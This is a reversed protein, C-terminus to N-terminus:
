AAGIEDAGKVHALLMADALLDGLKTLDLSPYLDLLRDALQQLSTITPDQVLTRIQDVAGQMVAQTQQDLADELDDVYDRPGSIGPHRSAVHKDTPKTEDDAVDDKAPLTQSERSPGLLEEDDAPDPIGLKDRISSMGVKLGRDILAPLTKGLMEHDMAERNGIRLTPYAKQPGYNLDVMPRVLMRNIAAALQKADSRKIDERVENHVKGVAYGGAIADTTGTQGVVVKSVQQDLYNALSSFLEVSKPADVQLQEIVMSTPIIAAFDTSINMVADLLTAKDEPSAGPGYKGVRVPHGYAEAFIVWDKLTFNKFLWCWAVARALGGKVTLGSKAAIRTTIFKYATLPRYNQGDILLLNQGMEDFRFWKQDCWELRAPMYQKESVEWVIETVSYGKGAADMMHFLEDELETRSVFGRIFDAIEVDRPADTASDVTIELQAVARKRTGLVGLYHLDKEEMDEALELYATPDITEAMRLIAGLRLPDLGISPHLSTINRRALVNPTAQQQTLMQRNIPLGDPGLLRPTSM